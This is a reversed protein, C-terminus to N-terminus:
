WGIADIYVVQDADSGIINLQTIFDDPILRGLCNFKLNLLNNIDFVVSEGERLIFDSTTATHKGLAVFINGTNDDKARLILITCNPPLYKNLNVVSTGITETITSDTFGM